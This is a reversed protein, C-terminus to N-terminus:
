GNKWNTGGFQFIMAFDRYYSFDITIPNGTSLQTSTWFQTYENLGLFSSIWGRHGGPLINMGSKNNGNGNDMWGNTSKYISENKGLFDFLLEWDKSKSVSFGNPALGREDKVAFYNYIKGYKLGNIPDNDYYCWAGAKLNDWENQNQVQPIPDGNAYCEVDLNKTMWEQNGIKVSKLIESVSREEHEKIIKNTIEIANGARSLSNSFVQILSNEENKNDTM